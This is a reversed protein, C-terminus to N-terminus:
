YKRHKKSKKKKKKKKQKKEDGDNDNNMNDDNDLAFNSELSDGSAQPPWSPITTEKSNEKIIICTDNDNDDDYIDDIAKRKKKNNGSDNNKKKNKAPCNKALHSNEGCIRCAGGNPYIGKDNQDCQSSLHGVKKCIFCTAFTFGNGIKPKRCKAARHSNDGCNYCFRKFRKNNKDKNHPCDKLVHDTSRCKLCPKAPEEKKKIGEQGDENNDDPGDNIGDLKSWKSSASKKKKKSSNPGRALSVRLPRGLIAKENFKLASEASEGHLYEVHCFNKFRRTKRDLGWRLGVVKGAKDFLRLLDDESIEHHLNGVFIQKQKGDDEEHIFTCSTGKECYGNRYALCVGGSPRQFDIRRQHSHYSM